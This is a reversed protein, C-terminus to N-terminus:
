KAIKDPYQTFNSQFSRKTNCILLNPHFLLFNWSIRDCNTFLGALVLLQDACSVWVPLLKSPRYMKKFIKSTFFFGKPNPTLILTLRTVLFLSKKQWILFSAWKYAYCCDKKLTFLALMKLMIFAPMLFLLIQLLLLLSLLILSLAWSPISLFSSLFLFPAISLSDVMGCFQLSNRQSSM